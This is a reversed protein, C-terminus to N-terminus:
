FTIIRREALLICFNLVQLIDSGTEL